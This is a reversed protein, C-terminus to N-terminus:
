RQRSAQRALTSQYDSELSIFDVKLFELRPLVVVDFGASAKTRRFLERVLRKARNRQTAGGLRRSAIIGLRSRPLDNPSILLTLYRGRTRFGKQSIRQYDPRRRVRENPRLTQAVVEDRAGRAPQM